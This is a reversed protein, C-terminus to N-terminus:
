GDNTELDRTWEREIFNQEFQWQRRAITARRAVKRAADNLAHSEALIDNVETSEENRDFPSIVSLWVGLRRLLHRIM